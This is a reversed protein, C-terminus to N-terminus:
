NRVSIRTSEDIKTHYAIATGKYTGRFWYIRCVRSQCPLKEPCTLNATGGFYGTFHTAGAFIPYYFQVTSKISLGTEMCTIFPLHSNLSCRFKGYELIWVSIYYYRFASAKALNRLHTLIDIYLLCLSYKAQICVNIRWKLVFTADFSTYAEPFM